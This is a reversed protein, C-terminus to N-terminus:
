IGNYTVASWSTKPPLHGVCSTAPQISASDWLVFCLLVPTNMSDLCINFWILCTELGLPVRWLDPILELNVWIPAAISKAVALPDPIAVLREESPWHRRSFALIISSASYHRISQLMIECQAKRPIEFSAGPASGPPPAPAPAWGQSPLVRASPAPERTELASLLSVPTEQITTWCWEPMIHCYVDQFTAFRQKRIDFIAWEWGMYPWWERPARGQCFDQIQAQARSQYEVWVSFMYFYFWTYIM